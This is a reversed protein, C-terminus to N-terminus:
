VVFRRTQDSRKVIQLNARKLITPLADQFGPGQYGGDAYLKLSFPYLGFLSAMLLMGGDRDQIDAAHVVAHMLLGLTDVLIHRKKGRIKKGADYGSPDIYAGRKRCEKRKPQRDRLRDPQRRPGSARSMGSLPRPPGEGFHRRLDLAPPLWAPYQAAALGKARLAM